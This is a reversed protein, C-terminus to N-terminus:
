KIGFVKAANDHFVAQWHEPPIARQYARVYAAIDTVIPWDTGFMIKEPNEIYGFAWALPKVVYEEVKAPDLQDLNGVLLASGEVYVNKNKYVVEAASQIWPNGLHAIVFNVQRYQVAVEDITLPDAYKVHGDADWTDGTHFVVPVKYKAALRYFPHYLPSNAWHRVYGLYIKLCGYRKSKLGAKVLAIKSSESIGACHIVGKDRLDADEVEDPALKKGSFADSSGHSIAAVVGAKKWQAFYEAESEELQAPNETFHTHTHVDIISPISTLERRASQSQACASLIFAILLM